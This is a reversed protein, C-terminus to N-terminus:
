GSATGLTSSSPRRIETLNGLTIYQHSRAFYAFGITEEDLLKNFAPTM